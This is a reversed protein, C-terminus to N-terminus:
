EDQGGKSDFQLEQNLLSELELDELGPVAAASRLRDDLEHKIRSLEDLDADSLASDRLRADREQKRLFSEMRSIAQGYEAETQELQRIQGVVDKLEQAYIRWDPHQSVNDTDIGAQKIRVIIASRDNELRSISLSVKDRQFKLKGLEQRPSIEEASTPVSPTVTSGCGVLLILLQALYAPMRLHHCNHM